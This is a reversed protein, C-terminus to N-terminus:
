TTNYICLLYRVIHLNSIILEGRSPKKTYVTNEYYRYLLKRDYINPIFKKNSKVLYIKEKEILSLVLEYEHKTLNCSILDKEKIYKNNEMDYLVINNM